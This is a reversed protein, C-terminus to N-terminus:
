RFLNFLYAIAHWLTVCANWLAPILNVVSHIPHFLLGVVSGLLLMVLAIGIGSIAYLIDWFIFVAKMGAGIGRSLTGANSFYDREIAIDTKINHLLKSPANVIYSFNYLLNTSLDLSPAVFQGSKFKLHYRLDTEGFALAMERKTKADMKKVSPGLMEMAAVLDAKSYEGVSAELLGGFGDDASESDNVTSYAAVVAKLQYADDIEGSLAQSGYLIVILLACLGFFREM